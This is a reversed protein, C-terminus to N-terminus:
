CQSYEVINCEAARNSKLSFESCIYLFLIIATAYEKLFLHIISAWIQKPNLRQGGKWLLIGVSLPWDPEAAHVNTSM